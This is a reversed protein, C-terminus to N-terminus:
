RSIQKVSKKELCQSVCKKLKERIRYARTRFGNPLLGLRGALEARENDVEDAKAREKYFSGYVEREEPALTQWCQRVCKDVERQFLDAFLDARDPPAPTQDDLQVIRQDKRRRERLVNDAIGRMFAGLPATLLTGEALAKWGRLITEDALDAADSAGKLNFYTVLKGRLRRYQEVGELESRWDYGDKAM